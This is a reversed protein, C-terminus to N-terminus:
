KWAFSININFSFLNIESYYFFILFLFFFLSRRLCFSKSRGKSQLRIKGRSRPKEWRGNLLPAWPGTCCELADLIATALVALWKEVRTFSFGLTQCTFRHATRVAQCNTDKAPSVSNSRHSSGGHPGVPVVETSKVRESQRLWRM